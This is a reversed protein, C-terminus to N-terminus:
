EELLEQLKAIAVDPYYKEIIEKIKDKSIHEKSKLELLCVYGKLEEIEKLQISIDKAMKNITINKEEIEKQQKNILNLVIDIAKCFGKCSELDEEYNCIDDIDIYSVYSGDTQHTVDYIRNIAEKEEESM